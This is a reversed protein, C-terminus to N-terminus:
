ASREWGAAGRGPVCARVHARARARVKALATAQAELDVKADDAVRSALRAIAALMDQQQVAATAVVKVLASVGDYELKSIGAARAKSVLKRLAVNSAAVVRGVAACLPAVEAPPRPGAFEALRRRRRAPPAAAAYAGCLVGALADDNTLVDGGDGSKAWSANLAAYAAGVLPAAIDDASADPGLLPEIMELGGALVAMLQANSGAIATAWPKGLTLAPGM